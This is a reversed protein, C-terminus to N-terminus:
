SGKWARAASPKWWTSESGAPSGGANTKDPSETSSGVISQPAKGARAMSATQECSTAASVTRREVSFSVTPATTVITDASLRPVENAGRRRPALLDVRCFLEKLSSGSRTTRLTSLFSSTTSPKLRRSRQFASPVVSTGTTISAASVDTSAFSRRRQALAGGRVSLAMSSARTTWERKLSSPRLSLAM